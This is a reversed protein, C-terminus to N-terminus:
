LVEAKESFPHHKRPATYPLYLSIQGDSSGAAHSWVQLNRLSHNTQVSAPHASHLQRCNGPGETLCLHKSLPSFILRTAFSCNTHSLDTLSCISLVLCFFLFLKWCCRLSMANSLRRFVYSTLLLLATWFCPDFGCSLRVPSLSNKKKKSIVPSALQTSSLM